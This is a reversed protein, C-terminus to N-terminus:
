DRFIIVGGWGVSNQKLHGVFEVINSHLGAVHGCRPFHDGGFFIDSFFEIVYIM